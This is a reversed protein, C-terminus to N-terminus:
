EGRGEYISDRSDDVIVQNVRHSAAWARLERSWEEPTVASAVSLSENPQLLLEKEDLMQQLVENMTKGTRQAYTALRALVAPQIQETTTSTRMAM